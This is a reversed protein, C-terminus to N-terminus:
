DLDFAQLHPKERNETNIYVGLIKAEGALKRPQIEECSVRIGSWLPAVSRRIGLAVLALPHIIIREPPRKHRKQFQGVMQSLLKEKM